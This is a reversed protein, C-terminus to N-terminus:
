RKEEKSLLAAGIAGLNKSDGSRKIKVHKLPTSFARRKLKKFFPKSLLDWSNSVGGSFTIMDPNFINIVGGVGAALYEAIKEFVLMAIKNKERAKVALTQPTVKGSSLGMHKAMAIIGKTGIFAELCGYNGCGCRPGNPNIVMHGIEGASGTSGRYLKGNLIIGGGIGTGLTITIFNKYKGKGDIAYSGFVASNADNDVSVPVRLVKEFYKKIQVNKWRPMNPSFRLIGRKSDIDGAIGIGVSDFSGLSKLASLIKKLVAKAPEPTMLMEIRKKVVGKGDTLVILIKTGGIDVGVLKESM